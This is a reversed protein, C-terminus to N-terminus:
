GHFRGTGYEVLYVAAMVGLPVSLVAAILSQVLSGYLAHFGM